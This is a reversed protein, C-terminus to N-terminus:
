TSVRTLCVDTNLLNRDVAYRLDRCLWATSHAGYGLKGLVQYQSDFMDGIKVHYFEEPSYWDWNEEELKQVHNLLEFGYSPFQRPSSTRRRLLEGLSGLLRRGPLAMFSSAHARQLIMTHGAVTVPSSSVRLWPGPGKVPKSSIIIDRNSPRSLVFSTLHCRSIPHKPQCREVVVEPLAFGCSYVCCGM